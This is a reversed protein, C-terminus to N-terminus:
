IECVCIKVRGFYTNGYKWDTEIIKTKFETNSSSKKWTLEFKEIYNLNRTYYILKSGEFLNKM